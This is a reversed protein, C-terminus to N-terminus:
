ENLWETLTTQIEEIIEWDLIYLKNQGKIYMTSISDKIYFQRTYTKDAEIRETILFM